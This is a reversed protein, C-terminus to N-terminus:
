RNLPRSPGIDAFKRLHHDRVVIPSSLEYRFCRASVAYSGRRRHQFRPLSLHEPLKFTGAAAIEVAHVKRLLERGVLFRKRKVTRASATVSTGSQRPNGCASNWDNLAMQCLNTPEGARPSDAM